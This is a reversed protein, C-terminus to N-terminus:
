AGQFGTQRALNRMDVTKHFMRECLSISRHMFFVQLISRRLPKCAQQKLMAIYRHINRQQTIAAAPAATKKCIAIYLSIYRFL